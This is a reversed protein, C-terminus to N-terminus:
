ITKRWHTVQETGDILQLILDKRASPILAQSFPFKIGKSEDTERRALYRAYEIIFMGCDNPNDQQPVDKKRIPSLKLEDQFPISYGKKTRHEDAIWRKLIGQVYEGYRADGCLSDYYDITKLRLNVVALAWHATLHIPVIIKDLKFVDTKPWRRVREYDYGERRQLSTSATSSSQAAIRPKTLTEFFHTNPIWVKWYKGPIVREDRELLSLAATVITDNLWEGQRLRNLDRGFVEINNIVSVIVDSEVNLAANITANEETTFQTKIFPEEEKKEKGENKGEEETDESIFPSIIPSFSPLPYSSSSKKRKKSNEEDEEKKKQEKEELQLEEEEEEEGGEMKQTTEEEEREKEEKQLFSQKWGNVFRM